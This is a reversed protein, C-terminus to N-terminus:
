RELKRSEGRGILCVTGDAVTGQARGATRGATRRDAQRDVAVACDALRNCGKIELGHFKYTSQTPQFTFVSKQHIRRSFKIVPRFVEEYATVYSFTSSARIEIHPITVPKAISFQLKNKDKYGLSSLSLIFLAAALVTGHHHQGPNLDKHSQVSGHGHSTRITLDGYATCERCPVVCVIVGRSRAVKERSTKECVSTSAAPPSRRSVDSGGGGRDHDQCRTGTMRRAPM